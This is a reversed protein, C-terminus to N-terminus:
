ADVESRDAHPNPGREAMDERPPEAWREVQASLEALITDFARTIHEAGGNAYTGAGALVHDVERLDIIARQLEGLTSWVTTPVLKYGTSSANDRVRAFMWGADAADNMAVESADIANGYPPLM